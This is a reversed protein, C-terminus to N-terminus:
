KEPELEVECDKEVRVTKQGTGGGSWTARFVYDGYKLSIPEASPVDRWVGPAKELGAARAAKLYGVGVVKAKAGPKKPVLRVDVTYTGAGQYIQKVKKGKSKAYEDAAALFAKNFKDVQALLKKRTAARDKGGKAILALEDAVIAEGTALFDKWPQEKAERPHYKRFQELFLQTEWPADLLPFEEEEIAIGSAYVLVEKKQEEIIRNDVTVERGKDDLVRSKLQVSPEVLKALDAQTLEARLRGSGSLLVAAALLYGLFRVPGGGRTAWSTKRMSCRGNKM